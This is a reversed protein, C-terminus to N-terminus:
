TQPIVRRCPEFRLAALPTKYQVFNIDDTNMGINQMNLRQEEQTVFSAALVGDPRYLLKTDDDRVLTEGAITFTETHDTIAIIRDAGLFEVVRRCIALDVHGGDFNLAPTLRKDRAAVLIAAPLPGLLTPLSSAQWTSSSHKALEAERHVRANPTRFAHKFARPMDNFLHDTLILYPSREYGAEIYNMVENFRETSLEPSAGDFHGVAIRGGSDYILALLDAFTFSRDIDDQLAFIDPALVFYRLGLSFWEAM